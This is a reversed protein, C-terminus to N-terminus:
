AAGDLTVDGPTTVSQAATRGLWFALAGGFISFGLYLLLSRLDREYSFGAQNFLSEWEPPPVPTARLLGAVEVAFTSFTTLSGCLGTAVAILARRPAQGARRALLVTLVGLFLCGVLNVLLTEYPIGAATAITESSYLSELEPTPATSMLLVGPRFELSGDANREVSWAPSAAQRLSAGVVGGM